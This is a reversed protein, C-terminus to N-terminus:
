CNGWQRTPSCSNNNLFCAVQYKQHASFLFLGSYVFLLTSGCSFTIFVQLTRVTSFIPSLTESIALSFDPHLALLFNTNYHFYKKAGTIFCWAMSAYPPTSANTRANTIKASPPLSHNAERPPWNAGLRLVRFRMSYAAPHDEAATQVSHLLNLDRKTESM